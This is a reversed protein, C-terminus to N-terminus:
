GGIITGAYRSEYQDPTLNGLKQLLRYGIISM